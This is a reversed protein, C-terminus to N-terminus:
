LIQNYCPKDEQYFVAKHQKKNLQVLVLHQIKSKRQNKPKIIVEWHSVMVRIKLELYVEQHLKDQLLAVQLSSLLM